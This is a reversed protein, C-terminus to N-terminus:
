NLARDWDLGIDVWVSKHVLAGTSIFDCGVAGYDAITDLTINGSIETVARNGIFEKATRLNPLTFNDLMIIDVEAELAADIQDIRDVEMEILLGPNEKRSQIAAQRTASHLDNGFAALHNDKLMVRDFLGMRHNWGGGCSVSYKELYRYGPTTKRTDLLRTDTATLADAFHRTTTAIGSLRQLFNLLTREITLVAQCPGSITAIPNGSAVMQGDEASREIRLRDDFFRLIEDAIPLGCVCLSDRALITAQISKSSDLLSSSRDGTLKPKSLLGSGELDEQIALDVLKRIPGIDLEEWSIRQCCAELIKKRATTV